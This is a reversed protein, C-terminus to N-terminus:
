EHRLAALPDLRAARFAPYLGALIGILTSFLLAEAVLDWTVVFFPADIPIQERKLYDLIVRNLGLGLLWGCFVGVIGGFLGILGAELMFIRLVDGNSSGIAKLTGIERTREYIAMIMTNAIGISAVLLALLGVSSLMVQLIAFIRNAQDLLTQLTASRFGLDSVAKSVRSADNLSGTHVVVASYGDTDLIKPDNFWWAKIDLKDANGLDAGARTVTKVIGRVTTRFQQKDGRPAAVTIVAEKGVLGAMQLDTFGQSKLLRDNLVLGRVDPTYLMPQGVLMEDQSSFIRDQPNYDRVTLPFSKGDLALTMEPSAPLSLVAELTTVGAIGKIKDLAAQNLPVEPRLRANPNSAGPPTSTRPGAFVTDLGLAQITDTIQKQIGIGLSVMTVITIIGVFVGVSTLVTRVKRRGLNQTATLLTDSLRM